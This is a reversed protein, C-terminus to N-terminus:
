WPTKSDGVDPYEAAHSRQLKRRLLGAPDDPIRRLWQETAQQDETLPEETAAISQQEAAEAGTDDAATAQEAAAQEAEAQEADAAAQQEADTQDRQESQAEQQQDDQQTANDRNDQQQGSEQQESEQQESEQQGSDQQEGNEENNQEPNDSQNEQQQQLQQLQEAIDRNHAAKKYEPQESLIGDFLEIAAAYKGAQTLATAQNYRSDVDDFDSFRQAAAEHEGAGYDGVGQWRPNAHQRLGAHDQKEWLREAQQQPTLWLDQWSQAYAAASYVCWLILILLSTVRRPLSKSM